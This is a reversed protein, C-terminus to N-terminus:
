SRVKAADFLRFQARVLAVVQGDSNTIRVDYVANRKAQVAEVAEARLVDGIRAPAVFTTHASQTAARPHRTLCAYAAATDGLAFIYGGHCIGDSNAMAASVELGIAPERGAPDLLRINLNRAGPSSALLRHFLDRADRQM